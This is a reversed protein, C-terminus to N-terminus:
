RAPGAAATKIMGLTREPAIPYRPFVADLAKCQLHGTLV